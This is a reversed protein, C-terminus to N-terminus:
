STVESYPLELSYDLYLKNFHAYATMLFTGMVGRHQGGTVDQVGRVIDVMLHSTGLLLFYKAIAPNIHEETM